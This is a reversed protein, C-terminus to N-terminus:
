RQSVNRAWEEHLRELEEFDEHETLKGPQDVGAFCDRWAKEVSGQHKLKMVLDVSPIREDFRPGSPM